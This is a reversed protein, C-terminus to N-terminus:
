RMRGVEGRLAEVLLRSSAAVETPRIHAYYGDGVFGEPPLQAPPVAHFQTAAHRVFSDANRCRPVPALYLMVRTQPSAFRSTLQQVSNEADAQFYQKPLDCPAGLAPFNDYDDVHGLAKATQMERNQGRALSKLVSPGFTSYLRVPFAVADVPHRRAFRWMARWNSHRLMMEEGEFLKVNEAHTYDLNWPSFYFVILKPPRNNKLYQRLALDGTVPLSGITNPLVVSHIGLQENLLRPDVGLFASSDGFIVVDANQQKADFAWELMPGWQSPGWQEFSATRVLAFALFYLVLPPVFLFALYRLYPRGGAAWPEKGGASVVTEGEHAM